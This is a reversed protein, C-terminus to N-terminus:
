GCSDALADIPYDYVLTPSLQRGLGGRAPRWGSAVLRHRLQRAARMDVEDPRIGLPGAVKAALWAAIADPRRAMGDKM